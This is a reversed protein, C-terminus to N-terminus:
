IPKYKIHYQKKQRKNRPNNRGTRLVERTPYLIQDFAQLAQKFKSKIFMAIAMDMAVASTKNIKQCHKNQQDAQHEARLKEEIPPAYAVTLTMLFVHAFFDQKVAKATKGSFAELEIRSKLRKYAQEADATRNM